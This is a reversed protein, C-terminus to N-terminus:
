STRRAMKKQTHPTEPPHHRDQALRRGGGATGRRGAEGGGSCGSNQSIEWLITVNTPINIATSPSLPPLTSLRPHHHLFHHHLPRHQLASWHKCSSFSLEAGRCWGAM